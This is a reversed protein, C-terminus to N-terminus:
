APIPALSLLGCGYAKAKGIGNELNDQAAELDNIRLVLGDLLTSAIPVQNGDKTIYQHGHSMRVSDRDLDFASLKDLMWQERDAIPVVSRKGTDGSKYVTNLRVRIRYKKDTTISSILRDLDVTAVRGPAPIPPVRSQILVWGGSRADPEVRYLVGRSGNQQRELNGFLSMVREHVWALNDWCAKHSIFTSDLASVRSLYM